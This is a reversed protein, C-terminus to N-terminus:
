RAALARPSAAAAMSAASGSRFQLFRAVDTVNAGKYENLPQEFRAQAGGGKNFMLYRGVAGSSNALGDPFRM